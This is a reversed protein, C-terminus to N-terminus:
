EYYLKDEDDDQSTSNLPDADMRQKQTQALWALFEPTHPKVTFLAALYEDVLKLAKWRRADAILNHLDDSLPLSPKRTQNLFVEPQRIEPQEPPRERERELQRASLEMHNLIDLIQTELLRTGDRWDRGGWWDMRFALRGTPKLDRIDDRKAKPLTKCIEYLHVRQRVERLYIFTQREHIEIRYGRRRWCKILTDMIRLARGTNSPMVRISIQDDDTRVMGLRGWPPKGLGVEAAQILKDPKILRDPVNFSFATESPLRLPLEPEAIETATVMEVEGTDTPEAAPLPTQEVLKGHKLRAWHGQEPLPVNLQRCRKLIDWGKVGFEIVLHSIPKSWVRDYLEVRTLATLKM